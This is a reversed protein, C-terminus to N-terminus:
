NLHYIVKDLMKESYSDWIGYNMQNNNINIHQLYHLNFAFLINALHKDFISNCNIEYGFKQLRRQLLEINQGKDGLKFIIKNNDSKEIEHYIGHGLINLFRWDFTIGPDIKRLNKATIDSHGIINQDQIKPYMNKLTDILKALAFYM